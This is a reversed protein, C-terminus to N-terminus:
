ISAPKRAWGERSWGVAPLWGRVGNRRQIELNHTMGHSFTLPSSSNFHLLLQTCIQQSIWLVSKSALKNSDWPLCGSEGARVEEEDALAVLAETEHCWRLVVVQKPRLWHFYSTTFVPPGGAPGRTRYSVFHIGPPLM